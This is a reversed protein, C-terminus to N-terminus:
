LVPNKWLSVAGHPARSYVDMIVFDSLVIWKGSRNHLAALGEVSPDCNAM